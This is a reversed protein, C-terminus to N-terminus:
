DFQKLRKAIEREADRKKTSERKDHLAKGKALAIELKVLGNKLYVMTPVITYGVQSVKGDLRKIESKNLLLKRRRLEDHNFQNAQKYQNIHMGVIFVENNVIEIYAETISVQNNKISKVESGVLVIGAEFKEELFYEYSARRNKVIIKM